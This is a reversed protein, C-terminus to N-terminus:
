SPATGFSNEKKEVLAKGSWSGRAFRVLAVCVGLQRAPAPIREAEGGEVERAAEWGACGGEGGCM